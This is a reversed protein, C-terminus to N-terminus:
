PSSTTKRANVREQLEHLPVHTKIPARSISWTHKTGGDAPVDLRGFTLAIMWDCYAVAFNRDKFGSGVTVRAGAEIARQIGRLSASPDRTLKHSFRTHYYNATDGDSREGNSLFRYTSSDFPAPLHLDLSAAKGRLFLGVAIHDM